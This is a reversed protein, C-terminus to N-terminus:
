KWKYALSPVPPSGIINFFLDAQSQRLHMRYQQEGKSGIRYQRINVYLGWNDWMQQALFEQEEKTFSECAFSIVIQKSRRGYGKRRYSSGDDMFWHLLSVADLKLDRPVVKKYDNSSPYWKDYIENLSDQSYSRLIWYYLEGGQYKETYPQIFKDPENFIFSAVYEIHDRYKNKKAFYPASISSKKNYRIMKADGLMCGNLVSENWVFDNNRHLIRAERINRVPINHRILAQRASNSIPAGALAAIQATSLGENIYKQYLWQADNLLPYKYSYAPM